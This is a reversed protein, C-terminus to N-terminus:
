PSVSIGLSTVFYQDLVRGPEDSRGKVAELGFSMLTYSESLDITLMPLLDCAVGLKARVGFGGTPKRDGLPAISLPVLLQADGLLALPGLALRGDAGVTALSYRATPVERYPTSSPDAFDFVWREFTASLSWALPRAASGRYTTGLDFHYFTTDVDSPPQTDIDISRLGIARGFSGRFGLNELPEQNRFPFVDVRASIAFIGSAAFHKDTTSPESDVFRRYGWEPAVRFAVLPSEGATVAAPPSVKEARVEPAFFLLLAGCACARKM